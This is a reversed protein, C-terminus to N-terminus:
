THGLHISGDGSRIELLFGGGNLKGRLSSRNLSGSVTVPLDSDIHGDGTHVDLDAAFNEPVRLEISGDSTRVTWTSTMKSGPRVAAEIRGDSTKLELDDFRGDVRIRGDSTHARLVGDVRDAEIRGDGSDLRLQGAVDNVSIRGDGSHLDLNAERPLSVQVRLAYSHFSFSIYQHPRRVEIDIHNGTQRDTVTVEGPGIKLRESIVTVEVDKRDAAHVEISADNADVRLEPRGTVTFTKKWEDALASTSALCLVALLL